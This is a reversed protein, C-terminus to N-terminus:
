WKDLNITKIQNLIQDNITNYKNFHMVSNNILQVLAVKRAQTMGSANIKNKLDTLQDMVKENYQDSKKLNKVLNEIKSMNKFYDYGYGRKVGKVGRYADKINSFIGENTEGENISKQILDVLESETLRITKKM